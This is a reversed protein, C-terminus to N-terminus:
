EISTFRWGSGTDTLTAHWSVADHASHGATLDFYDLTGEISASASSADHTVQTIRLNAHLDKARELFTGLDQAERPTMHPNVARVKALNRSELATAYDSVLSAIENRAADTAPAPPPATPPAPLPASPPAPQPKPRLALSGSGTSPRAPPASPPAPNPAPPTPAPTVAVTDYVRQVVTDVRPAASPPPAPIAARDERRTMWWTGGIAAILLAAALGLMPARSKAPAAMASAGSSAPPPVPKTPARASLSGPVPSVPTLATKARAAAAGDRALTRLRVMAPDERALPAAGLAAVASEVDPFRQAPDKALMKDIAQAVESPCSPLASTIPPPAENSHAYMIVLPSDANFPVRGTLMEYAVIGLSYQDSAGTLDKKALCQEPSMYYPTGIATGTMTLGAAEGAKAIGFDTVIAWGETDVMINAPKMDRHVVGHAHAYGLAAGVQYLIARAMPLPLPGTEKIISDLSRGEVYKMVFYLVRPSERVAYIPIINPHSLAGATRAERKFREVMQAGGLLASSMVKIAVKRDLAIEHALYVTAMGGRGLEGMIDYVGLTESRLADLQASEPSEGGTRIMETPLQGQEGSVDNGCQPCHRTGATISAGCRACAATTPM